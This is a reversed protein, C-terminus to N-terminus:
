HIGHEHFLKLVNEMLLFLNLYDENMYNLPRSM